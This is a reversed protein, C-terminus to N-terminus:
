CHLILPSSVVFHSLNHWGVRRIGECQKARMGHEVLHNRSERGGYWLEVVAQLPIHDLLLNARQQPQQDDGGDKDEEDHVGRISEADTGFTAEALAREHRSSVAAHYM